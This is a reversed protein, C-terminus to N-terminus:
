APTPSPPVVAALIAAINGEVRDLRAIIAEQGHRLEEQGGRLQRVDQQMVDLARGHM